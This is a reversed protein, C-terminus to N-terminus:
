LMASSEDRRKTALQRRSRLGVDTPGAASPHM